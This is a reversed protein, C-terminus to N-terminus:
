MSDQVIQSYNCECCAYIASAVAQAIVKGTAQAIVVSNRIIQVFFIIEIKATHM